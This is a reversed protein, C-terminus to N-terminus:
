KQEGDKGSACNGLSAVLMFALPLHLKTKNAFKALLMQWKPSVCGWSPLTAGAPVQARLTVRSGDTDAATVAEAMRHLGCRLASYTVGLGRELQIYM